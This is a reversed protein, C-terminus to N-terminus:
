AGAVGLKQYNRMCLEQNQVAKCPDLTALFICSAGNFKFKLYVILLKQHLYIQHLIPTEQM